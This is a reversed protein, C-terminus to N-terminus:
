LGLQLCRRERLHSSAKGVSPSCEWQYRYIGTERQVCDTPDPTLGAESPPLVTSVTLIRTSVLRIIAKDTSKADDALRHKVGERRRKEM